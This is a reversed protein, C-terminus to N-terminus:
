KNMMMPMRPYNCHFLALSKKKKTTTSCLQNMVPTNGFVTTQTKLNQAKKLHYMISTQTNM